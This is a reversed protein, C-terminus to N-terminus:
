NSPRVSVVAGDWPRWEGEDGREGSEDVAIQNNHRGVLRRGDLALPGGTERNKRREIRRGCRRTFAVGVREARGCRRGLAGAVASAM